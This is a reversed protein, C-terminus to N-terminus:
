WTTDKEELWAQVVEPDYGYSVVADSLADRVDGWFANGDYHMDDNPVYNGNADWYGGLMTGEEEEQSTTTGQIVENPVYNGDLDIYGGRKV